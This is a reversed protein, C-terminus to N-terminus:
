ASAPAEAEVAPAAPKPMKDQYATLAYGLKLIIQNMARGLSTMPAAFTCAMHALLQQRGPLKALKAMDKDNYLCGEVVGGLIVIATKKKIAETFKKALVAPDVAGYILATPGQFFKELGALKTEAFAIRALRNQVVQMSIGDTYLTKRLAVNDKSKLGKFTVVLLSDVSALDRQLEEVMKRKVMQVM